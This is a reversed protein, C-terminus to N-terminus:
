VQASRDESLDRCTSVQGSEKGSDNAIGGSGGDASRCRKRGPRSRSADMGPYDAAAGSRRPGKGPHGETDSSRALGNGTNSETDNPRGQVKGADGPRRRSKM